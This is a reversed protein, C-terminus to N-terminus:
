MGLINNKKLVQVIEPRKSKISDHFRQNLIQWAILPCIDRMDKECFNFKAQRSYCEAYMCVFVGCDYGNSQRPIDTALEKKWGDLISNDSSKAKMEM